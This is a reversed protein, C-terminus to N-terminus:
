MKEKKILKGSRTASFQSDPNTSDVNIPKTASRKAPTKQSSTSLDNEASASINPTSLISDDLSAFKDIDTQTFRQIPPSDLIAVVDEQLQKELLTAATMGLLEHLTNDWFIFKATDDGDYVEVDLKYKITPNYSKHEKRCTYPPAIGEAKCSCDTCARFFWGQNSVKIHSTTVVTVCFTESKLKKMDGLRIVRAQKMFDEDSNFQSGGSTQSNWGQSSAAGLSRAPYVRDNPLSNFFDKIEPINRDFLLKTGNWVNTVQLPYVGQPEKVRAHKIIMVLPGNETQQNYFNLFEASLGDWLTCDLVNERFDKLTFAANGKKTNTATVCKKMSDVVGIVDVLFDPEFKGALIEAFDKFNFLTRPIGPIDAVNVRTAGVFTLRYKHTTMKFGTDNDHVRFNHMYYTNGEILKPKWQDIDNELISAQITNGKIDRILLELSVDTEGKSVTWMDDLIVGLRWIEKKKNVIKVPDYEKNDPQVIIKNQETQKDESKDPITKDTEMSSECEKPQESSASKMSKTKGSEMNTKPVKARETEMAKTPKKHDNAEM